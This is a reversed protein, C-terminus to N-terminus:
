LDDLVALTKDASCRARDYSDMLQQVGKRTRLVHVNAGLMNYDAIRKQQHPSLRGGRPRKTEVFCVFGGPLLVLRDFFGRRGITRVKEARGGRREVEHVLFNEIDSELKAKV